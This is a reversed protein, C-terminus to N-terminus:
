ATNQLQYLYNMILQARYVSFTLGYHLGDYSHAGESIKFADFVPFGLREATAAMGKNYGLVAENGQTKVFQEPKLHGGAHMAQYVVHPRQDEPLTKLYKM